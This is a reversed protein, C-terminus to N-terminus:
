STPLVPLDTVVASGASEGAAGHIAISGDDAVLWVERAGSDLYLRVKELLEPGPNSPSWIEVCLDPASLLVGPGRMESLRTPDCWAVDAVKVGERTAIACETLVVDGLVRDLWATLKAQFISHQTRTPSMVIQGSRNTEIKYPLNALLQDDVIALWRDCVARLWPAPARVTEVQRREVVAANM